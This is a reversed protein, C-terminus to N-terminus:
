FQLFCSLTTLLDWLNSRLGPPPICINENRPCIRGNRGQDLDLHHRDIVSDYKRGSELFVKRNQTIIEQVTEMYDLDTPFLNEFFGMVPLEIGPGVRHCKLCM